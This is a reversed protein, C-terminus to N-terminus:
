TLSWDVEQAAKSSRVTKKTILIPCVYASSRDGDNMEVLDLNM